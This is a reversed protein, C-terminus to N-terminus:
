GIHRSSKKRFFLTSEYQNFCQFFHKFIGRWLCTIVGYSGAVSTRASKAGNWSCCLKKSVTYLPCFPDLDQSSWGQIFISSTGRWAENSCGKICFMKRHSTSVPFHLMKSTLSSLDVVAITNSGTYIQHVGGVIILHDNVIHATHSYRFCLCIM